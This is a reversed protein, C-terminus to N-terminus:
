CYGERPAPDILKEYGRNSGGIVDAAQTFCELLEFWARRAVVILRGLGMQLECPSSTIHRRRCITAYSSSACSISRGAAQFRMGSRWGSPMRHYRRRDM